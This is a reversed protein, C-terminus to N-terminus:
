LQDSQEKGEAKNRQTFAGDSRWSGGDMVTMQGGVPEAGQWKYSPLCEACKQEAAQACPDEQQGGPELRGSLQDTWCSNVGSMVVLTLM